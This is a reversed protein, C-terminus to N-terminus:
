SDCKFYVSISTYVATSIWNLPFLQSEGNFPFDENPFLIEWLLLYEDFPAGMSGEREREKKLRKFDESHEKAIGEMPQRPIVPECAPMQNMHEEETRSNDDRLITWCRRCQPPRKHYKRLHDRFQIM